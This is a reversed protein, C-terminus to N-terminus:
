EVYQILFALGISVPIAVITTLAVKRWLRPVAPAGAETGPTIEGAEAQSKVGLPLVAFLSLWWSIGYIALLTAISM